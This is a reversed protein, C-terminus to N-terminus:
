ISVGLSRGRLLAPCISQKGLRHVSSPRWLIKVATATKSCWCVSKRRMAYKKKRRYVGEGRRRGETTRWLLRWSRMIFHHESIKKSMTQNPDFYHGIVGMKPEANSKNNEYNNKEICIKWDCLKQRIDLHLVMHLCISDM